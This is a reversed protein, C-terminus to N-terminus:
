KVSFIESVALDVAINAISPSYFVMGLIEFPVM